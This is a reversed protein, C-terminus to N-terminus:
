NNMLQKTSMIKVYVGCRTDCRNGFRDACRQQTKSRVNRLRQAMWAANETYSCSKRSVSPGPIAPCVQFLFQPVYKSCSNHSVSPVHIAAVTYACSCCARVATASGSYTTVYPPQTYLSQVVATHQSRRPSRIFRHVVATHQSLRISWCVRCVATNQGSRMYRKARVLAAVGLM